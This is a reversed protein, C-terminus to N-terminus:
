GRAGHLAEPRTGRVIEHESFLTSDMASDIQFRNIDRHRIQGSRDIAILRLIITMVAPVDEHRLERLLIERM